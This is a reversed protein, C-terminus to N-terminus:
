ADSRNRAGEIFVPVHQNTTHWEDFVTRVGKAMAVQGPKRHKVKPRTMYIVADVELGKRLARPVQVGEIVFSQLGSVDRIMAHPVEEWPLSRYDDTGIVPRDTALQALTSKGM